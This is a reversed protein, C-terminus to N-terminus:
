QAVATCFATWKTRACEHDRQSTHSQPLHITCGAPARRMISPVCSRFDVIRCLRFTRVLIIYLSAGYLASTFNTTVTTIRLPPQMRSSTQSRKNHQCVGAHTSGGPAVWCGVGLRLSGRVHARSLLGWSARGLNFIWRAKVKQSRSM